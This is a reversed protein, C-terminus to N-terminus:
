YAFESLVRVSTLCTKVDLFCVYLEIDCEM